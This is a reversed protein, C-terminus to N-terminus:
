GSTKNCKTRKASLTCVAHIGLWDKFAMDAQLIHDILWGRLFDRVVDVTLREQHFLESQWMKVQHKLREHEIHHAGLEPYRMAEMREEEERFHIVTYERLEKIIENVGLTGLKERVAQVVRNALDILQKHQVDIEPIGTELASSWVLGSM